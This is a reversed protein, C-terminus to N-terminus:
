TAAVTLVFLVIDYWPIRKRPKGSRLALFIVSLSLALLIFYYQYTWLSLGFIHLNFMQNISVFLTFVTMVIILLYWFKGLKRSEPEKAEGM